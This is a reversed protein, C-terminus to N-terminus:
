VPTGGLTSSVKKTDEVILAIESDCKGVMSRDNINASGMIVFDDDVIMLKSHVYVIETVPVDNLRAHTRLGYFQIYDEPNEINPDEKLQEYISL